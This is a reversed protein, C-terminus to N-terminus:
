FKKIMNNFKYISETEISQVKFKKIWAGYSRSVFCVIMDSLNIGSAIIYVTSRELSYIKYSSYQRILIKHADIDKLAM